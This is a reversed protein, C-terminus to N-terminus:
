QKPKNRFPNPLARVIELGPATAINVVQPSETKNDDLSIIEVVPRTFLEPHARVVRAMRSDNLTVYSGVPFLSTTKLLGRVVDPDFLGNRTMDLIRKMADYPLIDERDPRPTILAIFVDAVMAIRALSHIQVGHRQRPYGSGNWREHMQYAVMRSGTPVDPLQRLLDFAASPHKTIELFEIDSLKRPSDVLEPPVFQMGVDHVLCGIGLEILEEKKLGLTTGVSMALMATKLSRQAPSIKTNSNLGMSVVLDMDETIRNLQEQSAGVMESTEPIDGSAFADLLSAVQQTTEQYAQVFTQVKEAQYTAEGHQKVQNLFSKASVGFRQSMDRLEIHSARKVAASAASNPDSLTSKVKQMRQWERTSIRVETVGRKALQDLVGQSIKKGAALLLLDRDVSSADYIPERLKAGLVLHSLPILQFGPPCKNTATTM